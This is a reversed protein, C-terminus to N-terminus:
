FLKRSHIGQKRSWVHLRNHKIFSIFRKKLLFKLLSKKAILMWQPAWAVDYILMLKGENWEYPYLPMRRTKSVMSFSDKDLNAWAIYAIPTKVASYFVTVRNELASARLAALLPAPTDLGCMCRVEIIESLSSFAGKTELM